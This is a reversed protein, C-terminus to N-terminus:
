VRLAPCLGAQNTANRLARWKGMAREPIGGRERHMLPASRFPPWGDAGAMCENPMAASPPLPMQSPQMRPSQMFPLLDPADPLWMDFFIPMDPKLGWQVACHQAERL